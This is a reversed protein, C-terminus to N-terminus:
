GRGFVPGWAPAVASAPIDELEAAAARDPARGGLHAPHWAAREGPRPQHRGLCQLGELMETLETGLDITWRTLDVDPPVLRPEGVALDIPRGPTLDPKSPGATWIRQSGWIVVPVVPVGTERGLAAVGRMLARITFSRSVGAEPFVGVAEGHRLMSRANLYAGAPAERDVPIHGMADMARNVLPVQWVDHRCMFRVLRGRERAAQEIFVFDPYGVHNAALLVPGTEPLHELGTWRIDVRRSRILAAGLRNTVRYIRDVHAPM